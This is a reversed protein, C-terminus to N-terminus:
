SILERCIKLYYHVLVTIVIVRSRLFDFVEHYLFCFFYSYDFSLSNPCIFVRVLPIFM